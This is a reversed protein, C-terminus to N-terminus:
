VPQRKMKHITLYTIITKSDNFIILGYSINEEVPIILSKINKSFTYMNKMQGNKYQGWM